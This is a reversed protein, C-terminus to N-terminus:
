AAAIAAAVTATVSEVQAEVAVADGSESDWVFATVGRRIGCCDAIGREIQTHFSAAYGHRDFSEEATGSIPLLHMTLRQLGPVIRGDADTDFAWGAVFVRDIWGKLLAPMSWWWVPFVLVLHEARDVRRQEAHVAPDLPGRGLYRARDDLSFRPDFGEQALHALEAGLRDRLREAARHTLSDPDPHATVILTSMRGDDRGPHGDRARVTETVSTRVETALRERGSGIM